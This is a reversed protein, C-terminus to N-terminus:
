EKLFYDLPVGFYDALIQLKDAKPMMKGRKWESFFSSPMNVKKGLQYFSLGQEKTLDNLRAYSDVASLM